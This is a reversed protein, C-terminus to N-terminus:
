APVFPAELVFCAGRGPGDSHFTLTGGLEKAAIASSHLGFGHGGPRTTFGHRFLKAAHEPAIGAGTDHVELVFTGETSRHLCVRVRRTETEEVAAIANRVLNTLVVVLKHKSLRCAPLADLEAVLELRPDARSAGELHLIGAITQALDISTVHDSAGAHQEHNAIIESVLQVGDVVRRLEDSTTAQQARLLATLQEVYTALKRERDSTAAEAVSAALTDLRALQLGAVQERALAAATSVHNLANGADHVVSAAIEAMGAAHASDVLQAQLMAIQEHADRIEVLARRKFSEYVLALAAVFVCMASSDLWRLSRALQAEGDTGLYFAANTGVSLAAFALGARPGSILLVLLPIVALWNLPPAGMGGLLLGGQVVVALVSAGAIAGLVAVSVGRRMALLLAAAVVILTSTGEANAWLGGILAVTTLALGTLGMVLAFAVLVRARRRLDAEGLLVGAPLFRDLVALM